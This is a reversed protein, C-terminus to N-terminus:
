QEGLFFTIKSLSFNLEITCFSPCFKSPNKVSSRWLTFVVFFLSGFVWIIIQSLITISINSLLVCSLNSRSGLKVNSFATLKQLVTSILSCCAWAKCSSVTVTLAIFLCDYLLFWLTFKTSKVVLLKVTRCITPSTVNVLSLVM